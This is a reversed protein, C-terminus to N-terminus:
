YGYPSMSAVFALFLLFLGLTACGLIIGAIALGRGQQAGGSAEIQNKAIVGFIIALISGIGWLWLIGLVLSAIALPNTPVATAAALSPPAYAGPRSDIQRFSSWAAIWGEETKEFTEVPPGGRELDWVGYRDRMTGLGYRRGREAVKLAGEAVRRGCHKCVAAEDQIEEACHVCMKM